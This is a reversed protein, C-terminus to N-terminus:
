YLESLNPLDGIETPTPGSFDNYSLDLIQLNAMNNWGLGGIRGGLNNNILDLEQLKSMKSLDILNGSLSNFGFDMVTLETLNSYTSPITGIIQNQELSFVSLEPLAGVEYPLTGALGNNRIDTVNILGNENCHTGSWKCATNCTLWKFGSSLTNGDEDIIINNGYSSQVQCTANSQLDDPDPACSNWLNNGYSDKNTSFYLVALIYRQVVQDESCFQGCNCADTYLWAIADKAPGSSFISDPVGNLYVKELITQSLASANCCTGTPQATPPPTPTSRTPNPTPLVPPMTPKDSSPMSSPMSSLSPMLSPTTSASASPFSSSSPSTSASKKPSKTGPSDTSKAAKATPVKSSKTDTAVIDSSSSPAIAANYSSVATASFRAACVLIIGTIVLSIKNAIGGAQNPPDAEEDEDGYPLEALTVDEVAPGENETNSNATMIVPLPTPRSSPYLLFTSPLLCDSYQQSSRRLPLGFLSLSCHKKAINIQTNVKVSLPRRKM